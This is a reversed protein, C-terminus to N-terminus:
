HYIKIEFTTGEGLTSEAHIAGKQKLIISHAMALGIGVSNSPGSVSGATSTYFKEFIHPLDEPAIGSGNDCITLTTSINDDTASLRVCGGPATHEICNKVINSIAETTWMRDGTFTIDPDTPPSSLDVEAVEAMIAFTDCINNLLDNMSITEKKLKIVDADLRALILLNKILWNIRNVQSEVKSVCELREEDSLEAQSLTETLISIATMPTKIQHSIDMLTDVMYTKKRNESSYADRLMNVVKFIENELIGLRGEASHNLDPLSELSDQLNTLYEILENLRRSRRRERIYSIAFILICACCWLIAAPFAKHLIITLALASVLIILEPIM